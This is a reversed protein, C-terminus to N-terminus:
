EWYCYNKIEVLKVFKSNLLDTRFLSIIGDPDKKKLTEVFLNFNESSMKHGIIIRKLTTISFTRKRDSENIERKKLCIRLEEEFWYNKYKIAYRNFIKEDDSSLVSLKKMEKNYEVDYYSYEYELNEIDRKLSQSDFVYCVGTFNGSYKCWMRRSRENKCLSLVGVFSCFSKWENLCWENVYKLTNEFGKHNLDIVKWYEEINNLNVEEGKNRLHLIALKIRMKDQLDDNNLVGHYNVKNKCDEKDAFGSPSSFYLELNAIVNDDHNKPENVMWRRYKCLEKTEILRNSFHTSNEMHNRVEFILDETIM